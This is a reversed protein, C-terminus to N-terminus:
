QLSEAVKLIEDRSIHGAITIVVGNETWTLIHGPGGDSILIAPQGRVSVESKQSDPPLSKRGSVFGQVVTFSTESHDYRLIIAEEMSLVDVLTVGAPVYGPVLLPFEVQARAEELTVPKPRRDEMNVVEVGEPIEFRFFDDSLGTNLELSRVRMWGEGLLDGTVHAQLVIWREQDVWLTTKSGAPLMAEEDDKPTIELKYTAQDDLTEEGALKVESTDLVRQILEDVSQIIERFSSPEDPGVEGVLVENAQPQYVWVQRGDTVHIAGAFEPDSTELMEARFKNPKKEWVEVVFEEAMGQGEFSMEVLAHADETSAEVEKLKAVIDDATVESQCGVLFLSLVVLMGLGMLWRKSM